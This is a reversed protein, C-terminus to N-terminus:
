FRCPSYSTSQGIISSNQNFNNMYDVGSINANTRWQTSVPVRRDIPNAHLFFFFFRFRMSLNTACLDTSIEIYIQLYFHSVHTNCNKRNDLHLSDFKQLMCFGWRFAVICLFTLEMTGNLSLSLSFLACMINLCRAM